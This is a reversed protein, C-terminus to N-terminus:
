ADQPTATPKANALIRRLYSKLAEFEAAAFGALYANQVNCLVAPIGQAALRGTETLELHVVRRDQESRVRRCLGKSELRDLMRTMAGADLHCARALEAATSAQQSYLKFLPIWQANTLDTPALQLEIEQALSTLVQRMLYSVSDDPHYSEARYFSAASAAAAKDPVQTPATKM